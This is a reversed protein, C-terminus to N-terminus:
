FIEMRVRKVGFVKAKYYTSMWVDVKNGAGRGMRDNVTFIKDGYLDPFKVRTGFPLWNAAILGDYVHRGNATIFPTSDIQGRTSSYATALAIATKKPAPVKIKALDLEKLVPIVTPYDALKEKTKEQEKELNKTEVEKPLLFVLLM